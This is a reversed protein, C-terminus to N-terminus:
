GSVFTNYVHFCLAHRHLPRPRSGPNSDQEPTVPETSQLAPLLGERDRQVPCVLLAKGPSSSADDTPVRTCTRLVPEPGKSTRVLTAKATSAHLGQLGRQGM